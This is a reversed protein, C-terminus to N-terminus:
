NRMCTWALGAPHSASVLIFTMILEWAFAQGDNVGKGPLFVGLATDANGVALGPVLAAQAHMRMFGRPDESM